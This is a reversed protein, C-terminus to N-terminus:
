VGSQTVWAESRRKAPISRIHIRRTLRFCFSQHVQTVALCCWEQALCCINIEDRIAYLQNTHFHMNTIKRYLSISLM